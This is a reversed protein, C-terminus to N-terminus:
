FKNENKDQPNNFDQYGSNETPQQNQYQYAQQNQQNYNYPNQANYPNQNPANYQSGSYQNTNYQNGNYQPYNGYAGVGNETFQQNFNMRAQEIPGFFEKYEKLKKRQSRYFIIFVIALIPWVLVALVVLVVAVTDVNSDFDYYDETLVDRELGDIYHEAKSFDHEKTLKEGNYHTGNIAFNNIFDTLVKPESKKLEDYTATVVFINEQTTFVYAHTYEKFMGYDIECLSYWATLGNVQKKESKMIDVTSQTGNAQWFDNFRKEIVSNDTDKIGDPLLINGVVFIEIYGTYDETNELYYHDYTESIEYDEPIEAYFKDNSIVDTEAFVNVTGFSFTFVLVAALIALLKKM